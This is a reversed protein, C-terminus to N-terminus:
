SSSRAASPGESPLIDRELYTALIDMIEDKKCSIKIMKEPMSTMLKKQIGIGLVMVYDGTEPNRMIEILALEELHRMTLRDWVRIEETDMGNGDWYIAQMM